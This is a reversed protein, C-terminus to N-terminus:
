HKLYENKITKNGLVLYLACHQLLSLFYSQCNVHSLLLLMLYISIYVISTVFFM